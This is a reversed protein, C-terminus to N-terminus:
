LPFVWEGGPFFVSSRRVVRRSHQARRIGNTSHADRATSGNPARTRPVGSPPVIATGGNKIEHEGQRELVTADAEGNRSASITRASSKGDIENGLQTYLIPLRATFATM